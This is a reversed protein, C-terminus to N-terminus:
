HCENVTDLGSIEFKAGGARGDTVSVTWGHAEVMDAVISLGFGTGDRTTTYGSEFVQERRGAPIGPGDDEVYIGGASGGIWVTLSEGVGDATGQRGTSGHEVADEPQARNTTSGHEVANRFLNEFVHRLRSPDADLAADRELVLTAEGTEVADWCRQALRGLVVRERSQVTQGESLLTLVEEVLQEMRDVTREVNDLKDDDYREQLVAVNGQAVNLPNRIDHTLTRSLREFREKQAELRDLSRELDRREVAEDFAVRANRALTEAIRIETESFPGDTKGASLVGYEGVPVYMTQDFPERDYPDTEGIDDVVTENRTFARGHPSSDIDYPPRTEIDNVRGGFAQHVLANEDPDYLRVGTGAFGLVDRAAESLVAAVQAETTAGIFERNAANLATVMEDVPRSGAADTSAGNETAM